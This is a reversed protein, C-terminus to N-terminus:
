LWEVSQKRFQLGVLGFKIIVICDTGVSRSEMLELIDEIIFPIYFYIYINTRCELTTINVGVCVCGYM